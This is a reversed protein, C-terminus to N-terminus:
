WLRLKWLREWRSGMMNKGATPDTARNRTMFQKLDLYRLILPPIAICGPKQYCNTESWLIKLTPLSNFHPPNCGASPNWPPALPLLLGTRWRFHSSSQSGLHDKEVKVGQNWGLCISVKWMSNNRVQAKQISRPAKPAINDYAMKTQRHKEKEAKYCNKM